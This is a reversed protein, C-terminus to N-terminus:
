VSLSREIWYNHPPPYVPPYRDFTLRMEYPHEVSVTEALIELFGSRRTKENGSRMPSVVYIWGGADAAQRTLGADTPPPPQRRRREVTAQQALGLPRLLASHPGPSKRLCAPRCDTPRCPLPASVLRMALVSGRGGPREAARFIVVGTQGFYRFM